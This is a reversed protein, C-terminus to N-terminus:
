LIKLVQSTSSVTFGLGGLIVGFGWDGLGWVQVCTELAGFGSGAGLGERLHQHLNHKLGPQHLLRAPIDLVLDFATGPRHM